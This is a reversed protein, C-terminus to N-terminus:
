STMERRVEKVSRDVVGREEGVARAVLLRAFARTSIAVRVCM